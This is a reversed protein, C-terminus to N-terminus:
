FVPQIISKGGLFGSWRISQISGTGELNAVKGAAGGETTPTQLREPLTDDKSTIGCRVSFARQLTLFSTPSVPIGSERLTYFFEIFM